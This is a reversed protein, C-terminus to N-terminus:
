ISKPTNDVYVINQQPPTYTIEQPANSVIMRNEGIIIKPAELNEITQTIYVPDGVIIVETNDNPDQEVAPSNEAVIETLLGYNTGDFEAKEYFPAVWCGLDFDHETESDLYCILDKTDRDILLMGNFGYGSVAHGEEFRNGSPLTDPNLMDANLLEVIAKDSPLYGLHMCAGDNIGYKGGKMAYQLVDYDDYLGNQHIWLGRSHGKPKRYVIDFSLPDRWRGSTEYDWTFYKDRFGSNGRKNYIYLVDNAVTRHVLTNYSTRWDAERETFNVNVYSYLIPKSLKKDVFNPNGSFMQLYVDNYDSCPSNAMPSMSMPIKDWYKTGYLYVDNCGILFSPIWEYHKHMGIRPYVDWGNYIAYPNRDNEASTGGFRYMQEDYAQSLNKTDYNHDDGEWSPNPFPYASALMSMDMQSAVPKPSVEGNHITDQVGQMWATYLCPNGDIPFNSSHHALYRGGGPYEYSEKYGFINTTDLMNSINCWEIFPSFIRRDVRKSLYNYLDSYQSSTKPYNNYGYYNEEGGITINNFYFKQCRIRMLGDTTCDIKMEANNMSSTGMDNQRYEYIAAVGGIKNTIGITRPDTDKFYYKSVPRPVRYAEEVSSQLDQVFQNTRQTINIKCNEIKGCEAWNPGLGGAGKETEIYKESDFGVKKM